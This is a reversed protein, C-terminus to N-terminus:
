RLFTQLFYPGIGICSFIFALRLWIRRSITMKGETKLTDRIAAVLFIVAIGIFVIAIGLYVQM